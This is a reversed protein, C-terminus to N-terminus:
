SSTVTMPRAQNHFSSYPINEGIETLDNDHKEREIWLVKKLHCTKKYEIRRYLYWTFLEAHVLCDLCASFLSM